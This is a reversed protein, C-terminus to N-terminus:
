ASDNEAEAEETSELNREAWYEAERHAAIAADEATAHIVHDLGACMGAGATYGALFGRGHPLRAIIPHLVFDGYEDAWYGTVRGLRTGTLYDNADELRLEFSSGAKDMTLWNAGSYFGRGTNPTAPRWRYPGAFKRAKARESLPRTFNILTIESFLTM